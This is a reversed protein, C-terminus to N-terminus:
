KPEKEISNSIFQRFKIPNYRFPKMPIRCSEWWVAMQMTWCLESIWKQQPLPEGIKVFRHGALFLLPVRGESVIKHTRQRSIGLNKAWTGSLQYGKPPTMKWTKPSRSRIKPLPKQFHPRSKINRPSLLSLNDFFQRDKTTNQVGKCHRCKNENGGKLMRNYIQFNHCNNCFKIDLSENFLLERLRNKHHIERFERRKEISWDRDYRSAQIGSFHVELAEKHRGMFSAWVKDFFAPDKKFLSVHIGEFFMNENSMNKMAKTLSNLTIRLNSGCSNYGQTLISFEKIDM